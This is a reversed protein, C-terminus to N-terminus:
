LSVGGDINLNTGTIYAGEDSLLLRVAGLIDDVTGARGLPVRPEMRDQSETHSHPHRIIGPSIVNVTIGSPAVDAALSRALSVLAAKAAFYVPARTKATQSEVGGSAFFVIRGRGADRMPPVLHRLGVFASRLNSDLMHEYHALDADLLPVEDFDGVSHVWAFPAGHEALFTATAERLSADDTMDVGASRSWVVARDGLDDAIGRGIGTRGGTILIKDHM